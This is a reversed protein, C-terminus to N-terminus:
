EIIMKKIMKSGSSSSLQYIYIGRNGLENENIIIENYGREGEIKKAIVNNGLMDFVEFICDMKRTLEFGIKTEGVFPNPFNQYLKVVIKNEIKVDNEKEFILEIEMLELESNYAEANLLKSNIKILDQISGNTKAKFKLYFIPEDLKTNQTQTKIWNTTILGDDLFTFGFNNEDIESLSGKEYGLFSLAQTDFEFTFQYGLLQEVGSAKIPIRYEKGAEFEQDPIKLILPPSYNRPDIEEFQGPDANGNVDGIKIGVFELGLEDQQLDEILISEPFPSSFPDSADPFVFSADVFRWSTNNSFVTDIQLIIKSLLIMDFASINGSRNVDSAIMKYPSALPQIGLIHRRIFILDFTSVGNDPFINKEPTVTYDGGNPLENFEFYGTADNTVTDSQAGNLIVNSLQVPIGDETLILGAIKSTPIECVTNNDQISIITECFDSNGAEDWVTFVVVQDGLDDCTFSNPIVSYTLNETNTCNDFSGNNIMEPLIMVTGDVDLNVAIELCVPTPSKADVVTIQMSCFTSNGCGDEASFTIEHIGPPYFGSANESANSAFPSDNTIVVNPNCDTAIAPPLNIFVGDCNESFMDVITDSPCTLIPAISDRIEIIQTHEWYGEQSGSNPDYICWDFIKWERLVSYCSPSINFLNDEHVVSVLECDDNIIQPIGTVATNTDAVCEYTVFDSPFVVQVPTNDEIYITQVCAANNGKKDNIAWIRTITGVNCENLNLFDNYYISDVGCNDSVIPEGTITLDSYDEVCQVYVDSPCVILPDVKDDVIANVVCENYNGSTDWVRLVVPISSSDIDFCDFIVSPGFNAGYRKVEIFDVGCNDFSSDDFTNAFVTTMGSFGLDVTISLDCIPVPAVDDVITVMMSCNSANGCQDTATYTVEYVGIPVNSFPGYGTGFEWEVNFSFDSCDDTASASPLTVVAECSTSLTGVTIDGPCTIIPATKDSVKIVQVHLTFDSSCYDIATWTRLIQYSNPSCLQIVQDSYSVVIECNGGVEIPKGNITPKGTLSLDNPDDNCDLAPLDFGDLHVPFEVDEISARKLFITQICTGLNGNPDTVFWTREIKSTITDTGQTEFCPLDIFNDSYSLDDNSFIVCNDWATPFGLDFPTIPEICLVTTDVCLIVPDIHDEVNIITSCSNGNSIKTVTATVAMGVYECTITNGFSNGQPDTIDVTFGSPDCSSDQLLISPTITAQGFEDLSINLSSKCSVVCAHNQFPISMFFLSIVFAHIRYDLRHNCFAFFKIWGQRVPIFKM